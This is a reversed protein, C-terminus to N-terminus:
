ADPHEKDYECSCQAAVLTEVGTVTKGGIMYLTAPVGFHNAHHRQHAARLLAPRHLISVDPTLKDVSIGISLGCACVYSQKNPSLTAKFSTLDLAALFEGSM